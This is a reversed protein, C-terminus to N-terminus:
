SLSPKWHMILNKRSVSPIFNDYMAVQAIPPDSTVMSISYHPKDGNMGNLDDALRNMIIPPRNGTYEDSKCLFSILDNPFASDKGYRSSQSEVIFELGGLTFRHEDILPPPQRRDTYYKVVDSRSLLKIATEKSVVALTPELNTEEAYALKATALDKVLDGSPSLTIDGIDEHYPVKIQLDNTSYSIEKKGIMSFLTWYLRRKRKAELSAVAELVSKANVDYTELSSANGTGVRRIEGKTLKLARADKFVFPEVVRQNYTIGDSLPSADDIGTVPTLDLNDLKFTELFVVRKSRDEGIKQTNWEFYDKLWTQDQNEIDQQLTSLYVDGIEAGNVWLAEPSIIKPVANKEITNQNSM